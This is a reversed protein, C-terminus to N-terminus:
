LALQWGKVSKYGYVKNVLRSVASSSLSYTTRFEYQTMSVQENTTINIFSYITHDYNISGSGTYLLRYKEKNKLLKGPNNPGLMRAKASPNSKGTLSKSTNPRKQGTQKEKNIAVRRAIQEASQKYGRSGDGGLTSNYGAHYSNYECIFYNEMIDKTYSYDLSQYVIDWQFHEWGYKNIARYFKYDYHKAAWKHSSKRYPWKSDFGIYVKQNILNTAKYITYINM